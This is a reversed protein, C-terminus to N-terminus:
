RPDFENVYARIEESNFLRRGGQVPYFNTTPRSVLALYSTKESGRMKTRTMEEPTAQRTRPAWRPNTTFFLATTMAPGSQLVISMHKKHDGDDYVCLMGSGVGSALAEAILFRLSGLTILM